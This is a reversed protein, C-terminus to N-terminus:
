NSDDDSDSDVVEMEVLEKRIDDMTTPIKVNETVEELPEWKKKKM